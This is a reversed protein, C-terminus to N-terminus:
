SRGCGTLIETRFDGLVVRRDNRLREVVGDLVSQAHGSENSVTVLGLVAVQHADHRDVEAAAVSCSRHLREKLSSIVRRKDKLSRADGLFLEVQLVGVVM